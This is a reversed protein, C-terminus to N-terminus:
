ANAYEAMAPPSSDRPESRTMEPTEMGAAYEITPADLQRHALAIRRRNVEGILDFARYRAKEAVVVLVRGRRVDVVILRCEHPCPDMAGNVAVIPGPVRELVERRRLSVPGLHALGGPALKQCEESPRQAVSIASGVMQDVLTRDEPM